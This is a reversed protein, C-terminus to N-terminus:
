SLFSSLTEPQFQVCDLLAVCLADLPIPQAFPATAEAGEVFGIIQGTGAGLDDWVVLSPAASLEGLEEGSSIQQLQDKDLPSVLVLRGSQTLNADRISATVQGIVQGIRM